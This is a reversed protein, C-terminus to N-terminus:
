FPLNDESDDLAAPRSTEDVVALDLAKAARQKAATDQAQKDRFTKAEVAYEAKRKVLFEPRVYDDPLTPTPMGKTLPSISLVVTYTNGGGSTKHGVNIVCPKGHLKHLPIGGSAELEEDTYPKGRWQEVIKRLNAKSGTSIAYEAFVDNPLPPDYTPGDSNTRFALTVTPALYPNKGAYSKLREGMDVVDHCIAIFSGAEHPLFEAGGGASPPPANIIDPAQPM